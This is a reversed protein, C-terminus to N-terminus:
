IGDRWSDWGRKHSSNSDAVDGESAGGTLDAVAQRAQKTGQGLKSQRLNYIEYAKDFPFLTIYKGDSGTPSFEDVISLIAEEQKPTFTRGTKEQLEALNNDIAEENEELQSIEQERQREFQESAQRVISERLEDERRQQIKWAKQSVESDGYLEVWEDPMTETTATETRSNQLAILQEELYSIRSSTENLEDVKKKFRSYPVKQEDSENGVPSSSDDDANTDEDTEEKTRSEPSTEKVEDFKFTEDQKDLTFATDQSMTEDIDM